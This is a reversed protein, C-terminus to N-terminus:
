RQPLSDFVGDTPGMAHGTPFNVVQVAMAIVAPVVCPWVSGSVLVGVLGLLGVSECLSLLVVNGTLYGRPTVRNGEWHRKYLQSRAFYGAPVSVALMVTAGIFITWGAGMNPSRGPLMAVFVVLGTLQTGLMAAWLLRLVRLAREATMEAM